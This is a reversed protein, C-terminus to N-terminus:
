TYTSAIEQVKELCPSLTEIGHGAKFMVVSKLRKGLHKQANSVSKEHPLLIDGEGIMLYTDTSVEDLQSSMYYPKETRDKYNKLVFELYDIM